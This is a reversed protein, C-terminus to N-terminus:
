NFTENAYINFKPVIEQIVNFHTHYSTNVALGETVEIYTYGGSKISVWNDRKARENRNSQYLVVTGIKEWEKRQFTFETHSGEDMLTSGFLVPPLNSILKYRIKGFNASIQKINVNPPPIYKKRFDFWFMEPKGKIPVFLEESTHRLHSKVIMDADKAKDCLIIGYQYLEKEITPVSASTILKIKMSM